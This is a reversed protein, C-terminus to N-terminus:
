QVNKFASYLRNVTTKPKKVNLYTVLRQLQVLFLINLYPNLFDQLNPLSFSRTSFRGQELSSLFNLLTGVYVNLPFISIKDDLSLERGRPHHL